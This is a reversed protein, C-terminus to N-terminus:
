QIYGNGLMYKIIVLMHKQFHFHFKHFIFHTFKFIFFGVIHQQKVHITNISSLKVTGNRNILFVQSSPNAPSTPPHPSKLFHPLPIRFIPPHFTPSSVGKHVLQYLADQLGWWLQSLFSFKTEVGGLDGSFAIGFALFIYHIFRGCKCMEAMQM